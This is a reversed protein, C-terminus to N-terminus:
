FNVPSKAESISNRKVSPGSFLGSDNRYTDIFYDEEDLEIESIDDESHWSLSPSNEAISTNNTNSTVTNEESTISHRCHIKAQKKSLIFKNNAFVVSEKPQPKKTAEVFNLAPIKKAKRKQKKLKPAPNIESQAEYKIPEPTIEPEKEDKIIFDSYFVPPQYSRTMYRFSERKEIYSIRLTFKTNKLNRYKYYDRGILLCFAVTMSLVIIMLTEFERYKNTHSFPHILLGATPFNLEIEFPIIEIETYIHLVYKGSIQIYDPNYTFSIVHTQGPGIQFSKGCNEFTLGNVKCSM